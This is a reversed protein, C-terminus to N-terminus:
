FQRFYRAQAGGPRHEIWYTPADPEIRRNMPDRGFLRLILGFLTFVLFYVLGLVVHSIVWGIPFAAYMWAIYLPRRVPPVAHYVVVIAAATVWIGMAVRPADFQWWAFTGVIAFFLAFLGGFWALERRSPSRNIEILAM